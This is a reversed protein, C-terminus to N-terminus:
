YCDKLFITSYRNTACKFSYQSAILERSNESLNILSPDEIYKLINAALTEDRNDELLIGTKGNIVIEPLGGVRTALVPTGCAMAELAASPLGETYSPLIFLKMNNLYKPLEEYNIWNILKVRETDMQYIFSTIVERLPGDGAVLIKINKNNKLILPISRVFNLVGKEESFRGIYGVVNDRSNYDKELKFLSTDVFLTGLIIKKKYRDLSLSGITERSEILIKDALSYSILEFSKLLYSILHGNSIFKASKSQSGMVFVAIHKRSIKGVILPLILISGMLLLTFERRVGLVFFGLKFQALIYKFIKRILSDFRTDYDINKIEIHYKPHYNGSIVLIEAALGEFIRILKDILIEGSRNHLALPMSVIAIKPIM